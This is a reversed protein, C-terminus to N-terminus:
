VSAVERAQQYALRKLRRQEKRSAKRRKCYEAKAELEGQKGLEHGNRMYNNSRNGNEQLRKAKGRFDPGEPKNRVDLGKNLDNKENRKKVEFFYDIEKDFKTFTSM